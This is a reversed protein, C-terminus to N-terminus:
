CEVYHVTPRVLDRPIYTSLIGVVERASKTVGGGGAPGNTYLTEVENGIRVAEDLSDTRGVVRVRVEYPEHHGGNGSLRDGHLSNVGILDFRLESTSVGTLKLRERVIDLALEGRARAGPGAYSIQGEGVFGEVTGISVKLTEPQPSGSAGQIRVQDPGIEEVTVRSFDAIVDPTLYRAPDHIEYLIQEKCTAPTIQGGSGPVKTIVVSGDESVEGIPFGLRALGPVDKYGPDAFYGGTVQGACELLHGILTAQGLRHWDDMTWGFEHILPGVFLSPDAARGTIVIDAGKALAEAIPQAGIYANGSVIRNRIDAVAVGSEEIRYDGDSLYPLVDDGMVAAVKLGTFGLEQAVARAREAAAMPNAAGMNTIIRVGKRHCLPLVARLREPLLPDYGAAPDKLKAQQALAITREALCEFVLYQLEGKEALEIAPEIRDGSYGAGAGIRIQRM